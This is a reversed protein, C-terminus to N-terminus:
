DKVSSIYYLIPIFFPLIFCCCCGIFITAIIVNKTCCNINEESNKPLNAIQNQTTMNPQNTYPQNMYPQNYPINNQQINNFQPNVQPEGTNFGNTYPKPFIPMSEPTVNTTNINQNNSNYQCDNNIMQPPPMYLQEQSNNTIENPIQNPIQNPPILNQITVNEGQNLNPDQVPFNENLNSEM